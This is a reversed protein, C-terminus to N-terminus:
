HLFFRRRCRQRRLHAYPNSVYRRVAAHAKFRRPEANPQAQSASDFFQSCTPPGTIPRGSGQAGFARLARSARRGRRLRPRRIREFGDPMRHKETRRSRGGSAPSQRLYVVTRPPIIERIRLRPDRPHPPNQNPRPIGARVRDKECDGELLFLMDDDGVQEPKVMIRIERGAQIAFSKEVGDFSNAIEELSRWASSTTRWIRAARAPVPPALHRRGGARTMAVVTNRSWTATTRRSPTSSTRARRTSAPSISASRCM